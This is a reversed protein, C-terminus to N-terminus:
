REGGHKKWLLKLRNSIQVQIGIESPWGGDGNAAEYRLVVMAKLWLLKLHNPVKVQM